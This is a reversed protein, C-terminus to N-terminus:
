EYDGWGWLHKTTKKFQYFKGDCSGYEPWIDLLHRTEDGHKGVHNYVDDCIWDTVKRQVDPFMECLRDGIWDMIWQNKEVVIVREVSKKQCVKTLLWGLGLGGILVTGQALLVAKRQTLMEMPTLSMWTDTQEIAVNGVIAVKAEALIPIVVDHSFWVRGRRRNQGIKLPEGAPLTRHCYFFHGGPEQVRQHPQVKRQSASVPDLEWLQFPRYTSGDLYLPEEFKTKADDWVQPTQTEQLHKFFRRKAERDQEQLSAMTAPSLFAAVRWDLRDLPFQIM